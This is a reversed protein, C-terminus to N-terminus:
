EPILKKLANDISIKMAENVATESQERANRFFYTAKIAGTSHGKGERKLRTQRENAYGVIKRGKTRRPKTGKEFFKMRFDSMISVIAECYAKDGKVTIGDEFPKRIYKSFHTASGGMERRFSQKAQEQLVKAGDKVAKFLIDRKNDADDLANLLRDVQSSDIKVNGDRGISHAKPTSTYTGHGGNIYESLRGM